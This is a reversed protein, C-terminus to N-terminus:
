EGTRESAFDHWRHLATNSTAEYDSSGGIAGARDLLRDPNVEYRGAEETTGDGNDYVVVIVLPEPNIRQELAELRTQTTRNM